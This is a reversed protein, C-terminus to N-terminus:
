SSGYVRRRFKEEVLSKYGPDFGAAELGLTMPTKDKCFRAFRAMSRTPRTVVCTSGHSTSLLSRAQGDALIAGESSRTMFDQIDVHSLLGSAALKDLEDEHQSSMAVFLFPLLHPRRSVFLSLIMRVSLLNLGFHTVSTMTVSVLISPVYCANM